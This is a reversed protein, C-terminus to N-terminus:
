SGSPGSDPGRQGDGSLYRGFFARQWSEAADALQYRMVTIKAVVGAAGTTKTMFRHGSGPYVQV